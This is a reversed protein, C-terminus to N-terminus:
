CGSFANATIKTTLGEPVTVSRVGRLQDIVYSHNSVSLPLTITSQTGVYARM